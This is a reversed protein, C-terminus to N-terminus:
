TPKEKAAKAARMRRITDISRVSANALHDRAELLALEPSAPPASPITDRQTPM